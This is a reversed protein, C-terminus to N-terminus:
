LLVAEGCAQMSVYIARVISDDFEQCHSETSKSASTLQKELTVPLPKLRETLDQDLELQNYRQTQLDTLHLINIASARIHLEIKYVIM